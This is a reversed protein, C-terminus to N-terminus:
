GFPSCLAIRTDGCGPASLRSLTVEYPHMDDGVRVFRFEEQLSSIVLTFNGNWVATPDSIFQASPEIALTGLYVNDNNLDISWSNDLLSPNVQLDVSYWDPDAVSFLHLPSALLLLMLLPTLFRVMRM